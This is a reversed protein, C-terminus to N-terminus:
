RQQSAEQRRTKPRAKGRAASSAAAGNGAAVSNRPRKKRRQWKGIGNVKVICCEGIDMRASYDSATAEPKMPVLFLKAKVETIPQGCSDCTLSNGM